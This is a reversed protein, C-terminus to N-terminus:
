GVTIEAASFLISQMPLAAAPDLIHSDLYKCVKDVPTTSTIPEGNVSAGNDKAAKRDMLSLRKQLDM